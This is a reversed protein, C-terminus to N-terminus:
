NKNSTTGKIKNTNLKKLELKVSDLQTMVKRQNMLFLSDAKSIDPAEEHKMFLPFILLLCVGFIVFWKLNPKSLKKTHNVEKPFFIGFTMGLLLLISFFVGWSGLVSLKGKPFEILGYGFFSILLSIAGFIGGMITLRNINQNEEDQREGSKEDAVLKTYRHLEEIESDLEKIHNEVRLAQQIMDYLEIGQDQATVERFYLQNRFEIYNKYLIRAQTNIKDFSKDESNEYSDIALTIRTVESSFRLIGARQLLVLQVMQFYLTSLHPKLVSCPFDGVSSLMVFSYRSVGYLASYALWRTYTAKSLLEKAFSSDPSSPSKGDVFVFQQWFDFNKSYAVDTTYTRMKAIESNDALMSLVFMRDDILAQINIRSQNVKSFDSVSTEFKDAGLLDLIHAPLYDANERFNHSFDTEFMLTDDVQIGIKKALFALHTDKLSFNNGLFQPYIRRGFDNIRLIDSTNLGEKTFEDTSLHFSLIGVGVDYANLQIKDIKLNYDITENNYEQITILYRMNEGERFSYTKLIPKPSSSDQNDFIAGRVFDYYYHYQNYDIHSNSTSFPSSKWHPNTLLLKDFSNANGYLRTRHEYSATRLSEHAPIIDWRFPFLFLHTSFLTSDM